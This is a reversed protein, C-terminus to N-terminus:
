KLVLTSQQETAKDGQLSAKGVIMLLCGSGGQLGVGV